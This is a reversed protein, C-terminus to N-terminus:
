AATVGRALAAAIRSRTQEPRRVAQEWSIRLVNLGHSELVAQRRADEARAIPHDHYRRGDAEVILMHARWLFDPVIREGDLHLPVNIAPRESTVQLILDLM